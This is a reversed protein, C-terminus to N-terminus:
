LAIMTAKPCFTQNNSVRLSSNISITLHNFTPLHLARESLVAAPCTHFLVIAGSEAQGQPLLLLLLGWSFMLTQLTVTLRAELSVTFVHAAALVALTLFLFRRPYRLRPEQDDHIYLATCGVDQALSREFCTVHTTSDLANISKKTQKAFVEYCFLKLWFCNRRDEFGDYNKKIKSTFYKAHSDYINFSTVLRGMGRV